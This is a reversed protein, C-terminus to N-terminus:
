LTVTGQITGSTAGLSTIANLPYLVAANTGPGAPGHIHAATADASLGSFSIDLTLTNGSLTVTGSGSGSGGSGPEQGSDMSVKFGDVTWLYTLADGDPDSSMTGDLTVCANSNNAAIVITETQGPLLQANPSAKAVATPCQDCVVTVKFSCQGQLGADD